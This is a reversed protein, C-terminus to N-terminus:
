IVDMTAQLFVHRTLASVQEILSDFQQKERTSVRCYIGVHQKRMFKSAPIVRIKPM